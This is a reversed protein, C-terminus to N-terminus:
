VNIVLHFRNYSSFKVSKQQRLTLGRQQWICFRKTASDYFRCNLKRTEEEAGEVEILKVFLSIKEHSLKIKNEQM